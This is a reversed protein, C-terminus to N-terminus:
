ESGRGARGAAPDLLASIKPWLFRSVREHGSVTLHCDDLFYSLPDAGSMLVPACDFFPIGFERCFRALQEEPYFADEHPAKRLAARVQQVYPIAAFVVPAKIKRVLLPILVDERLKRWAEDDWAALADSSQIALPETESRMAYKKRIMGLRVDDLTGQVAKLQGTSPRDRRGADRKWEFKVLDNTCFVIVVLSWDTARLYKDFFRLEQETSWGPCGANVLQVGPGAMSRMRSVFVDDLPVILGYTVSDGLFVIKRVAPDPNTEEPGVLGMSNTRHPTPGIFHRQGVFGPKLRYLLDEDYVYISAPNQDLDEKLAALTNGTPRRNSVRLIDILSFTVLSLIVGLGLGVVVLFAKRRVSLLRKKM